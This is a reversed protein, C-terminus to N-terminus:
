SPIERATAGLISVASFVGAVGNGQSAIAHVAMAVICINARISLVITSWRLGARRSASGTEVAM